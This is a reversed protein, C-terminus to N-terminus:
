EVEHVGERQSVEPIHPFKAYNMKSKFTIFIRTQASNFFPLAKQLRSIIAQLQRERSKANTEWPLEEVSWLQFRQKYILQDYQYLEVWCNM